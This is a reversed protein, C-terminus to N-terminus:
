HHHARLLIRKIICTRSYVHWPGSPKRDTIIIMVGFWVKQFGALMRLYRMVHRTKKEYSVMVPTAGPVAGTNRVSVSVTVFTKSLNLGNDLRRSPASVVADSFSFTTYSLGYAFPFLASTPTGDGNPFYNGGQM